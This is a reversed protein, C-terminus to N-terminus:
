ELFDFATDSIRLIESTMMKRETFQADYLESAQERVEAYRYITLKVLLFALLIMYPYLLAAEVTMSANERQKM